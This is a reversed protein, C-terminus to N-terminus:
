KPSDAKPRMEVLIAANNKPMPRFARIVCPIERWKGDVFMSIKGDVTAKSEKEDHPLTVTIGEDFGIETVKVTRIDM